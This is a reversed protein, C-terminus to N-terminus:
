TIQVKERKENREEKERGEKMGKKRENEKGVQNIGGRESGIM